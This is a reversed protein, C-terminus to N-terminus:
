NPDFITGNNEFISAVHRSICNFHFLKKGQDSTINWFIIPVITTVRTGESNCSLSIPKCSFCNM